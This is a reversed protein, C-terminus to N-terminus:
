EMAFKLLDECSRDGDYVIRNNNRVKVIHPVGDVQFNRAMERNTDINVKKLMIYRPCMEEFKDWDAHMQRCYGCNPSYFWIITTMCCYLYILLLVLLVLGVIYM